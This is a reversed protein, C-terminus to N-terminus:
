GGLSFEMQDSAKTVAPEEKSLVTKLADTKRHAKRTSENKSKAKERNSKPKKDLLEFEIWDLETPGEITESTILLRKTSVGAYGCMAGYLALALCSKEDGIYRMLAEKIRDHRGESNMVWWFAIIFSSRLM